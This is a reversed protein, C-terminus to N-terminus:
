QEPQKSDEPQAPYAPTLLQVLKDHTASNLPGAKGPGRLWDKLKKAHVAPLPSGSAEVEATPNAFLIVPQIPIEVEPLQKTLYRSLSNAELEADKVPNGLSDSALWLFLSRFRGAGKWKGNQYRITGGQMKIAFVLCNSPTILVHNAPAEYQLLIYRDDFGKLAKALFEDPREARSFRNAYYLGVQSLIFGGILALFSLTIGEPGAFWTVLLGLLLVGMGALSAYRGIRARRKIYQDNRYIQM